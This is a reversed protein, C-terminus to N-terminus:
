AGLMTSRGSLRRSVIHNVAGNSPEAFCHRIPDNEASPARDQRVARTICSKRSRDSKSEANMAAPLVTKSARRRRAGFRPASATSEERSPRPLLLRECRRESSDPSLVSMTRVQRRRHCVRACWGTSRSGGSSLFVAKAEADCRSSLPLRTSTWPHRCSMTVGRCPQCDRRVLRHAPSRRAEAPLPTSPGAFWQHFARSNASTRDRPSTSCQGRYQVERPHWKADNAEDARRAARTSVCDTEGREPRRQGHSNGVVAAFCPSRRERERFGPQARRVIAAALNGIWGGGFKCVSGDGHHPGRDADGLM